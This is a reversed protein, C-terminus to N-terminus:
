QGEIPGEGSPGPEDGQTAVEGPEEQVALMNLVEHLRDVLNPNHMAEELAGPHNMLVQFSDAVAAQDRVLGDMEALQQLRPIFRQTGEGGDGLLREVDELDLGGLEGILM